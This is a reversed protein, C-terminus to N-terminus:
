TFIKEPTWKVVGEEPYEDEKKKKEARNSLYLFNEVLCLAWSQLTLASSSKSLYLFVFASM